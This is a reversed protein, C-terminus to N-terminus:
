KRAVISAVVDTGTDAERYKLITFESFLTKLEGEELLYERPEAKNYKLNGVTHTEFVVIGGKKLGQKIGEVLKRDLYYLCLIVDYRNPKISYRTLDAVITKIKVKRERALAKAKRIAEQSIDVGEVDYKHQAMYVANRGEAMAIDLVLGKGPLLPLSEALFRAPEKGYIYVDGREKYVTDWQTGLEDPDEGTLVQYANVKARKPSKEAQAGAPLVLGAMFALNFALVTSYVKRM